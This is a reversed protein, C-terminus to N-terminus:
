LLLTAPLTADPWRAAAAAACAAQLVFRRKMPRARCPRHAVSPWPPLLLTHWPYFDPRLFYTSINVPIRPPARSLRPGGAIAKRPMEAVRDSRSMSTKPSLVQMPAAFEARPPRPATDGSRQTSRCQPPPARNGAALNSTPPTPRAPHNHHSPVFSRLGQVHCLDGNRRSHLPRHDPPLFTTAPPERAPSREDLTSFLLMLESESNVTRTRTTAAARASDFAGTGTGTGRPVSRVALTCKFADAPREEVAPFFFSPQVPSRRRGDASRSLVLGPPLAISSPLRPVRAHESHRDAPLWGCCNEGPLAFRSAPCISAAPPQRRIRRSPPGECVDGASAFEPTANTNAIQSDNTGISFSRPPPFPCPLSTLARLSLAGRTPTRVRRVTGPDLGTTPPLNDTEFESTGSQRLAELFRNPADHMWEATEPRGPTGCAVCRYTKHTRSTSDDTKVTRFRQLPSWIPTSVRGCYNELPTVDNARWAPTASTSTRTIVSAGHHRLCDATAVASREATSRRQPRANLRQVANGANTRHRRQWTDRTREHTTTASRPPFPLSLRSFSPTLDGLRRRGEADACGERLRASPALRPNSRRELEQIAASAASTGRLRQALLCLLRTRNLTQWTESPVRDASSVADCRRRSASTPSPTQRFRGRRQATYRTRERNDNRQTQAYAPTRLMLM